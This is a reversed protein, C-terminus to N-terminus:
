VARPNVFLCVQTLTVGFFSSLGAIAQEFFVWSKNENNALCDSWISLAQRRAILGSLQKAWYRKTLGSRSIEMSSTPYQAQLHLADFVDLSLECVERARATRNSTHHVIADLANLAIGDLRLRSVMLLRWDDKVSRKREAEKAGLSHSYRALYHPQWIVPTIAANRLELSAETCALLTQVSSLDHAVPIRTLVEVYIDLPLQPFTESMFTM